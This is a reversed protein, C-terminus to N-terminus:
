AIVICAANPRCGRSCRILRAETAPPKAAGAPHKGKGRLAGINALALEITRPIARDGRLYRYTSTVHVGLAESITEATM